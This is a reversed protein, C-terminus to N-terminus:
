CWLKDKEESLIIINGSTNREPLSVLEKFRNAGADYETIRSPSSLLLNGNKLRFLSLKKDDPISNSHHGQPIQLFNRGDFRQVGSGTSIWIFGNGDEVLDIVQSHLLGENVNYSTHNLRKLTQSQVPVYGCLFALCFVANQRHFFLALKKITSQLLMVM